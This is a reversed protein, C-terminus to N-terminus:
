FGPNTLIRYLEILNQEALVRLVTDEFIMALLDASDTHYKSLTDHAYVLVNTDLFIRIQSM